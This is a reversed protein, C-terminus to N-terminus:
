ISETIFQCILDDIFTENTSYYTMGINYKKINEICNKCPKSM